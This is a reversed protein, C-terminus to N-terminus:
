LHFEPEEKMVKFGSLPGIGSYSGWAYNIVSSINFIESCVMFNYYVECNMDDNTTIDIEDSM